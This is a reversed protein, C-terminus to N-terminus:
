MQNRLATLYVELNCSLLSLFLIYFVIKKIFYDSANGSIVGLFSNWSSIFLINGQKFPAYNQWWM